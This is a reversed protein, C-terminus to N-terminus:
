GPRWEDGNAGTGRVHTENVYTVNADVTGPQTGALTGTDVMGAASLKAGAFQQLRGTDGVLRTVNVGSQIGTDTDALIRALRDNIGTDSFGSAFKNSWGTSRAPTGASSSSM